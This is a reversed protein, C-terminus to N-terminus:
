PAAQSAHEEGSAASARLAASTDYATAMARELEADYGYIDDYFHVQGDPKVAATGYVILVPIPKALNVQVSEDTGTMAAQVRSADWGGNGQLVWVALALPDQVRICGHSFDRRSKSFLAHEPTGHLYVSYENPFVFKVPGLSNKDGPKQRVLLSGDRLGDMTENNVVGDSVLDGDRTVIEFNNKVLYAPDRVAKPVLEAEEIDTPVEWYPRFILYRMTASFVPTKHHFTKGVVVRMELAKDQDADWCRLMFEPINVIVPPHDYHQPLWRWRELTLRLQELRHSLPVNLARVTATGLVGDDDLGHRRQFSAVAEVLPHQYVQPDVSGASDDLDGLLKLRVALRVVGDYRDGPKVKKVNLLVPKGDDRQAMAEYTPLEAEVRRYASFPPETEEIALPMYGLQSNVLRESVFKAVDFQRNAPSLGFNFTKPNVRGFHLDSIFRITSVTMALDFRALAAEDAVANAQRLAALRAEWRPGDYDDPILGKIDASELAYALGAAQATPRGNVTWALAYGRGAYFQTVQALHDAFNPRRLDTLTGAEILGRLAAQGPTPQAQAGAASTTPVSGQQAFVGRSGALTISLAAVLM